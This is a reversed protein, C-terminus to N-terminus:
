ERTELPDFHILLPNASSTAQKVTVERAYGKAVIRLVKAVSEDPVTAFHFRGKNDSLTSLQLAPFEVLAGVLPIDNPGLLQGFMSTVPTPHANLPTKVLPVQPEPRTQQVPVSLIFAPRPPIGFAAWDGLPIPDLSVEFESNEMAALVLQGLIQNAQQQDEGWSTVLYRLRLRL